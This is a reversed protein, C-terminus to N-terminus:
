AFAEGEEYNDPITIETPTLRQGGVKLYAWDLIIDAHTESLLGTFWDCAEGETTVQEGPEIIIQITAIFTGKAM